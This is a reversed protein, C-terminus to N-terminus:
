SRLLQHAIARTIRSMQAYFECLEDDYHDNQVLHDPNRCENRCRLLVDEDNAIADIVVQTARDIAAQPTTTTM